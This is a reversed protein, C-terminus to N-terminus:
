DWPEEEESYNDEYNEEMEEKLHDELNQVDDTVDLSQLIEQYYEELDMDTKTSRPLMEWLDELQLLIRNKLDEESHQTWGDIDDELTRRIGDMASDLDVDDMENPILDFFEEFKELLEENLRM